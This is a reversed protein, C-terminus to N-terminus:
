VLNWVVVDAGQNYSPNGAKATIVFKHGMATTSLNDGQLSAVLDGNTVIVSQGSVFTIKWMKSVVKVTTKIGSATKGNPAYPATTNTYLTTLLASAIDPISGTITFTGAEYTTYIPSGTQDIKIESKTPEAQSIAISDKLTYFPEAWTTGVGLEGITASSISAIGGTALKQTHDLAM